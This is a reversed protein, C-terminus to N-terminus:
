TVHDCKHYMRSTLLSMEMILMVLASSAMEQIVQSVSARTIELQTVVCQQGMAPICVLPVNM